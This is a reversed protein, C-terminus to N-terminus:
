FRYFDFRNSLNWCNIIEMMITRQLVAKNSFSCRQVDGLFHEAPINALGVKSKWRGLETSVVEIQPYDVEDAKLRTFERFVAQLEAVQRGELKLLKLDM